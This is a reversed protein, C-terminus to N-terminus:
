TYSSSSLRLERQCILLQISIKKGTAGTSVSGYFNLFMNADAMISSFDVPLLFTVSLSHVVLRTFCHFPM